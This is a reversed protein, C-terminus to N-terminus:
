GRETKGVGETTKETSVMGVLRRLRAITTRGKRVLGVLTLLTDVLGTLLEHDEKTLVGKAREVMGEVAAGEIEVIPPQRGM